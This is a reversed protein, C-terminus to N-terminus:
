RTSSLNGWRVEAENNDLKGAPELHNKVVVRAAQPWGSTLKPCDIEVPRSEGKKMTSFPMVTEAVTWKGDYDCYKHVVFNGSRSDGVNRIVFSARVGPGDPAGTGRQDVAPASAQAPRPVPPTNGVSPPPVPGSEGAAIM